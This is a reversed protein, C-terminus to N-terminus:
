GGYRAVLEGGIRALEVRVSEPEVVEVMAGWGALQEAVSRPTHAAVRVRAEAEDVVTCHRGFQRRLVWVFRSEVVVTAEAGSRRGEVETLIEDWVRSLDLDEPREAAEGTVEMERVRDLRFTRRGADTGAVLYWFDGKEVLGWPHVVRPERQGGYYLRLVRRSVVARRALGLVEPRGGESRGWGAPDVLVSSTAAWARERMPEPLARVLKRLAARLEPSVAGTSTARAVSWVVERAEGETLGTLDTRAGGVLSWGGGRGAQAYVPVGASSLAELDRRATAVSVELEAALEAATVRGRAQLVLVAAVLRDARM